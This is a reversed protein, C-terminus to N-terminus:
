VEFFLLYTLLGNFGEHNQLIKYLALKLFSLLMKTSLAKIKIKLLKLHCTHFLVAVQSYLGRVYLWCYEQVNIEIISSVNLCHKRVPLKKHSWNRQDWLFSTDLCLHGLNCNAMIEMWSKQFYRSWFWIALDWQLTSSLKQHIIIKKVYLNVRILRFISLVEM